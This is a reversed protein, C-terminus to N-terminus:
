CATAYAGGTMVGQRAMQTCVGQLDVLIVGVFTDQFKDYEPPIIRFNADTGIYLNLYKSNLMFLTGDGDGDHDDDDITKDFM